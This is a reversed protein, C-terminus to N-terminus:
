LNGKADKGTPKASRFVRRFGAGNGPFYGDSRVGNKLEWVRLAALLLQKTRALSGIAPAAPDNGEESDFDVAPDAHSRESLRVRAKGTRPTTRKKMSFRPLASRTENPEQIATEHKRGSL